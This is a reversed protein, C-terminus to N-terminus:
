RSEPHRGAEGPIQEQLSTEVGTHRLRRRDSTDDMSEIVLLASSHGALLTINGELARYDEDGTAMGGLTVDGNSTATM